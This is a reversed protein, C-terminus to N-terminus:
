VAEGIVRSLEAKAVREVIEPLKEELWGQLMPRLMERVVDALTSATNGIAFESARRRESYIAVLQALATAAGNESVNEVNSEAAPSPAKRDAAANLDFIEASRQSPDASAAPNGEEAFDRQVKQLIEEMSREAIVDRSPM